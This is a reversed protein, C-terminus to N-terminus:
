HAGLTVAVLLQQVPLHDAMGLEVIGFVQVAGAKGPQFLGLGLEVHSAVLGFIGHQARRLGPHNGLTLDFHALHNGGPLGHEGQGGIALAFHHDAQRLLLKGAKRHALRHAHLKPRVRLLAELPADAFQRWGGVWARAGESRADGKGRSGRRRFQALTGPHEDSM